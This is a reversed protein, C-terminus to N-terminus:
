LQHCFKYQWINCSDSFRPIISSVVQGHRRSCLSRTEKATCEPGRSWAGSCCCTFLKTMMVDLEDCYTGHMLFPVAWLATAELRTLRLTMLHNIPTNNGLSARLGTHMAHKWPCFHLLATLLTGRVRWMKRPEAHLGVAEVSPIRGVLGRKRIDQLAQM